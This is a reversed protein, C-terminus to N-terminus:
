LNREVCTFGPVPVPSPKREPSRSGDLSEKWFLGWEYEAHESDGMPRILLRLLTVVGPKKALNSFVLPLHIKSTVGDPSVVVGIHDTHAVQIKPPRLASWIGMVGGILGVIGGVVAIIEKVSALRSVEASGNRAHQAGIPVMVVTPSAAPLPSPQPVTSAARSAVAILTALAMAILIVTNRMKHNVTM